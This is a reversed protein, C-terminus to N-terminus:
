SVVGPNSERFGLKQGSCRGGTAALPCDVPKGHGENVSHRKQKQNKERRWGSLLCVRARRGEAGLMGRAQARANSRGWLARTAGSPAVRRAAGAVRAAESGCASPAHPTTWITKSQKQNQKIILKIRKSQKQNNQIKLKITKSQKQNKKIGM